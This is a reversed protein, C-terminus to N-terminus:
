EATLTTGDLAQTHGEGLILIDKKKNDTHVSSSMDVCFIICNRGFGNGASFTEKRYFGIGYGSYEYKDIDNNKTLSIVGFLCNEITPYSSISFNKSIEYFIYINVMKGHTYTIKDQKLRSGNLKVRRKTGYYSLEPTISHSSTIVPKIIEDSWGKSKWFYIYNGSGVGIIKKFYRYM